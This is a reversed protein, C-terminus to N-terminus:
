QVKTDLMHTRSEILRNQSLTCGCDLCPQLHGLMHKSMVVKAASRVLSYVGICLHIDDHNSILIM